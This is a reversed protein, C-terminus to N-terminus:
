TNASIGSDDFLDAGSKEIFEDLFEDLGYIEQRLVSRPYCIIQYEDAYLVEDIEFGVMVQIQDDVVTRHWDCLGSGIYETLGFTTWFSIAGPYQTGVKPLWAGDPKHKRREDNRPCDREVAAYIGIDKCLYRYYYDSM